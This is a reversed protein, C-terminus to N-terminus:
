EKKFSHFINKDIIHTKVTERTINGPTNKLDYNLKKVDCQFSTQYDIIIFKSNLMNSVTPLYIAPKNLMCGFNTIILMYNLNINTNVVIPIPKFHLGNHSKSASQNLNIFIM